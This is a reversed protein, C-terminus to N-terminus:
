FVAYSIAVQSSNLRTSKRDLPIPSSAEKDLTIFITCSAWFCFDLDCRRASTAALHSVMIANTNPKPVNKVHIANHSVIAKAIYRITVTITIEQGCANPKATGSTAEMDVLTEALFPSNIRLLVTKSGDRLIDVITNSLVPVRVM